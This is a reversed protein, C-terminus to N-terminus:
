DCSGNQGVLNCRNDCSDYFRSDYYNFILVFVFIWFYIGLIMVLFYLVVNATAFFLGLLKCLFGLLLIFMYLGFSRLPHKMIAFVSDKLARIPNAACKSPYYLASLWFMLVFNFMAISVEFFMEWGYIIMLKEKPLSLLFSKIGESGQSINGIDETLFDINGIFHNALKINVFMLIAFMILYLIIGFLLPFTYVPIAGFFNEKIETLEKIKEEDTPNEKKSNKIAIKVIQLWGAFFVATFVLGLLFIVASLIFNQSIIVKPAIVTLFILYFVFTLTLVPNNIIILISKKISNLM